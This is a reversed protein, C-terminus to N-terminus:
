IHQGDKIIDIVEQLTKDGPDFSRDREIGLGFTGKFSKLENLSVTGCEAFRADGLNAFCWCIDNDDEKEYLYWTGTGTPNFLKCIIKIDEPKMQSTEGQKQFAKEIAQTILEM